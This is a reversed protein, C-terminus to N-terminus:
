KKVPRPVPTVGEQEEKTYPVGYYPFENLMRSRNPAVGDAVPKNAALTLMVDMADDALARGNFSDVEFAAKTGLRYPLVVPCLRAAVQKGYGAPDAATGAYRSVTEAFAAIPAALSTVDDAPESVNYHEKWEQNNPDGLFFNSVLPLGWRSVQMEPAHGYLSATAWGGVRGQGILDSPVELVLAV